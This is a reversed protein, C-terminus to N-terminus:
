DDDAARFASEIEESGKGAQRLFERLVNDAVHQLHRQVHPRDTLREAHIRLDAQMLQADLLGAQQLHGALVVFARDLAEIQGALEAFGQDAM